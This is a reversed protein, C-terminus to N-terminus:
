AAALVVDVDEAVDVRRGEAVLSSASQGLADVAPRAQHHEAAKVAEPGASVASVGSALTSGTPM